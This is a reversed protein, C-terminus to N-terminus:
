AVARNRHDAPANAPMVETRREEKAQDLASLRIMQNMVNKRHMEETGGVSCFALADKLFDTVPGEHYGKSGYLKLLDLAGESVAEAGALKAISCLLVAERSGELLHSLAGYAMWKSTEIGIRIDTLRRQVHQHEAIPVDFTQRRQAFELADALMPELMWAAALGYYLRGLSVIDVLNRLGDGPTGLLHGHDLMVNEFQMPGTPLDHLGLKRDAPGYSIGNTERDVLVLSIGKRGQDSVKCVVLIFGALPAHAINYKAGNLVFTENDAPTLLSSTARVDTGTDPDAIATASLEGELIRHLYIRKQGETGFGDLARVMGAQAIISLLIAPSAASSALGELAATFDWWRRGHGGYEEPVVMHWLGSDRVRNWSEKDFEGAQGRGDKHRSLRGIEKFRNRIESQEPTWKFHM